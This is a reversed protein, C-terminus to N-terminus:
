EKSRMPQRIITKLKEPATRRPDSLYIEHHYGSLECDADSIFQHINKITSAEDAYPGIYLIQASRGEEFTEFRVDNVAFLDKKKMVSEKASIVDAESIFDPQHIMCTWEWEDKKGDTFADMNKSWWLAELPMVTFDFDPSESKNSFKITYSLSYLAGVAEQFSIATNPDGVGNVMLFNFAPVTIDEIAKSSPQYFQKYTKKLDIKKM